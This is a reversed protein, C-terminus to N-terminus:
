PLARVVKEVIGAKRDLGKVLIFGVIFFLALSVIAPRQGFLDSLLGYVLPGIVASAKGCFGDYFGFFEARHEPPTLQAMYSRSASQSSGIGMGAFAGVVWFTAATDSFYAGVVVGIWIGLTILITVRAGKRDTLHGFLLSGIVAVIQVMMFFYILEPTTFHLTNKAYRGSFGIVTLIADNYVFFALLFRAVNKHQRIVQVTRLNESFGRKIIALIPMTRKKRQEPLWLFAPISFLLFFIATMLFTERVLAPTHSLLPQSLILIALSGVYGFAFGYGSVRGYTEKSTIEPLFADYFVLGGEFGANAIIFLLMGVLVMGPQLFYMGFTGLISIATFAILFRKKSGTLDAMAGLAPSILAVLLMSLSMAIGWYFDGRGNTVIVEGFYIPYVFTVIIGSFSSNAFDFSAWSAIVKKSFGDRTLSM